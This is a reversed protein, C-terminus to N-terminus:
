SGLLRNKQEPDTAYHKGEDKQLEAVEFRGYGFKRGWPSFGIMQGIFNLIGIFEDETPLRGDDYNESPDQESLFLVNFRLITGTQIAEFMESRQVTKNGKQQKWRRKYLVITSPQYHESPWLLQVNIDQINLANSAEQLAWFWISRDIPVAQDRQKSRNFRRIRESTNQSGLFPSTLKIGVNYLM